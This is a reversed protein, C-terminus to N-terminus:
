LTVETYVPVGPAPTWGLVSVRQLVDGYADVIVWGDADPGIRSEGGCVGWDGNGTPAVSLWCQTEDAFEVRVLFEGEGGATPAETMPRLKVNMDGEEPQISGARRASADAEAAAILREVFNEVAASSVMTRGGFKVRPLDGSIFLEYLKSKACNLRAMPVDLLAPLPRFDPQYASESAYKVRPIKSM